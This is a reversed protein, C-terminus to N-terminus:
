SSVAPNWSTISRHGPAPCWGLKSNVDIIIKFRQIFTMFFEVAEFTLCQCQNKGLISALLNHGCFRWQNTTPASRSRFICEPSNRMQQGTGVSGCQWGVNMPTINDFFHKHHCHFLSETRLAFHPLSSLQCIFIPFTKPTLIM